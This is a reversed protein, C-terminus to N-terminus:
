CRKEFARLSHGERSTLSWTECGYLIILQIITKYIKVKVNKSPLRSSLFLLSQVSQYCANGSKLRSKIEKHICNHDTLATVLYSLKAVDEFSTTATNISRMQGVKQSRPKLMYKTKEPNVELAVKKRAGLSAEAKKKVTDGNEVEINVDDTYTLFQHTGNLKPGEGKEQVRRIAYELASNFLL